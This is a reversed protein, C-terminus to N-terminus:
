AFLYGCGFELDTRGDGVVGFGLSAQGSVMNRYSSPQDRFVEPAGYHPSVRAAGERAPHFAVKQEMQNKLVGVLHSGATRGGLGAEGACPGRGVPPPPAKSAGLVLPPTLFTGSPLTLLSRTRFHGLTGPTPAPDLGSGAADEPLEAPPPEGGPQGQTQNAETESVGM